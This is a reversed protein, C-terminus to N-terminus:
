SLTASLSSSTILIPIRGGDRTVLLSEYMGRAGPIKKEADLSFFHSWPRQLVDDRNEYGLMLMLGNNAYSVRGSEDEIMIGDRTAEVIGEFIDVAKELENELEAMRFRAADLERRLASINNKKDSSDRTSRPTTM